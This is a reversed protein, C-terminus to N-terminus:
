KQSECSVINVLILVTNICHINGFFAFSFMRYKGTGTFVYVKHGATTVYSKVAQEVANWNGANFDQWQPAINTM